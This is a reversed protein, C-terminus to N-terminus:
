SLNKTSFRAVVEPEKCSNGSIVFSIRITDSNLGDLELRTKFTNTTNASVVCNAFQEM